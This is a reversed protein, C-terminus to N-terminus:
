AITTKAVKEAVDDAEKNAIKSYSFGEKRLADKVPAAAAPAPAAEAAKEDGKPRVAEARAKAIQEEREREKNATAEKADKDKKEREEKLKAQTAEREQQMKAEIAKERDATNVPAANGFPSPKSSPVPSGSPSAEASSSASRASLQLPRRQQPQPSSEGSPPTRDGWSRGSGFGRGAPTPLPALPGTRTWTKEEDAAGASAGSFTRREPAPASPVFKGGRIPGDREVEPAPAFERGGGGSFNRRPAEPASPIFKGGRLPADRDEGFSERPAGGFGGDRREFGGSRGALPALPGSRTWTSEADARGEAAKSEAVSIRVTRGGMDSGSLTLANKLDDVTKFEVYGFGKPKGDFGSVLRISTTTLGAFFDAIDAEGTEFSLNGVFATYPPATPIPVEARPPRDSEFGGRERGPRDGFGGSRDQLNRSLHSGGLQGVNLSPDGSPGTPLSDMEDAWSGGTSEDALFAGLDMKKGKKPPM